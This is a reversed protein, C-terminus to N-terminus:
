QSIKRIGNIAEIQKRKLPTQNNLSYAFEALLAADAEDDNKVLWGISLAAKLMADKSAHGNGAGFLKLSSPPIEQPIVEPGCFDLCMDYIAGRMQGAEDARNVSYLSPGEVCIGVIQDVETQERIFSKCVNKLRWRKLIGTCDKSFIKRATRTQKESSYALVAIGIKSPSPDIGIYYGTRATNKAM